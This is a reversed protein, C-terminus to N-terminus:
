LKKLNNKKELKLRKKKNSYLSTAINYNILM